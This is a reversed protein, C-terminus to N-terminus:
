VIKYLNLTVFISLVWSVLICWMIILILIGLTLDTIESIGKFFIFLMIVFAITLFVLLAISM